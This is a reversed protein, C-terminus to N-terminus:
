WFQFSEQLTEHPYVSQHLLLELLRKTLICLALLFVYHCINGLPLVINLKEYKAVDLLSLCTINLTFLIKM